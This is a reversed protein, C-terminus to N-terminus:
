DPTPRQVGDVALVPIPGDRVDYAFMMLHELRAHSAQFLGGPKIPRMSDTVEAVSPGERQPKVSAVEFRLPAQQASLAACVVATLIGIIATRVTWERRMAELGPTGAGRVDRM